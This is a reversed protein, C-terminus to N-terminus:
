SRIDAVTQGDRSSRSIEWPAGSIPLCQGRIGALRIMPKNKSKISAPIFFALSNRSFFHEVKESTNIHKTGVNCM